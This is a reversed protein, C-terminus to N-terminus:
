WTAAHNIATYKFPIVMPSVSAKVRSIRSEPLHRSSEDILDLFISLCLVPPTPSLVDIITAGITAAHPRVTGIIVPRANPCVPPVNSLSSDIDPYSERGEGSFTIRIRFVTPA